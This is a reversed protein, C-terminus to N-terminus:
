LVNTYNVVDFRCTICMMVSILIMVVHGIIHIIPIKVFDYSVEQVCNDLVNMNLYNVEQQLIKISNAKIEATNEKSEM